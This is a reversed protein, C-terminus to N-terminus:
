AFPSHADAITAAADFLGGSDAAPPRHDAAGFLDGPAGVAGADAAAHAVHGPQPAGAVLDAFETIASLTQWDGFGERWLYTESDVEGRLFRQRVESAPVPGIQERDIVLHWTPPEGSTEALADGVKDQATADMNSYDFVKTEKRDFEQNHPAPEAPASAQP